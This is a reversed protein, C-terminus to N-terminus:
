FYKKYNSASLHLAYGFMMAFPTVIISPNISSPWSLYVIFCLIISPAILHVSLEYRDTSERGAGFKRLDREVLGSVIGVIAFLLYAPISLLLVVLRLIVVKVMTYASVLYDWGAGREGKSKNKYSNVGIPNFVNTDVWRISKGALTIPSSGMLSEKFHVNIYMSEQKLMSKSHYAGMGKEFSAFSCVKTDPGDNCHFILAWEVLISLLMTIFITVPLAMIFLLIKTVISHRKTKEKQNGQESKAM